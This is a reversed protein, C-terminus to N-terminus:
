AYAKRAKADRLFTDIITFLTSKTGNDLAEIERIRKLTQKDVALEHANGILYDLTVGLTEAIRAAVQVSPVIENREYKSLAERSVDAEKALDTQSLGKAKRLSTIRDGLTTSMQYRYPCYHPLTRDCPAYTMLIM